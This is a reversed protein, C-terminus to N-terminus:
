QKVTARPLLWLLRCAWLCLAAALVTVLMWWPNRLLAMGEVIVRWVHALTLAGFALATTILYAKM